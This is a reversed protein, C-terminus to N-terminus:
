TRHSRKASGVPSMGATRIQLAAAVILLAALFILAYTSLAPVHHVPEPDPDPPPVPVPDPVPVEDCVESVGLALDAGSITPNVSIEISFISSLDVTDIGTFSALPFSVDQPLTDGNLSAPLSSTSVEATNNNTDTLVFRLATNLQDNEVVNISIFTTGSLDLMLGAGDADYVISFPAVANPGLSSLILGVPAPGILFIGDTSPGPGVVLPGFSINRFGGIVGGPDSDLFGVATPNGSTLQLGGLPLATSQITDLPTCDLITDNQAAVDPGLITAGFVSAGIFLLLQDLISKRYVLRGVIAFM